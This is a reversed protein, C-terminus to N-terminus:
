QEMRLKKLIERYRSNTPYAELLANCILLAKNLDKDMGAGRWYENMLEEVDNAVGDHIALKFSSTAALRDETVGFLGELYIIGLVLEAPGYNEKSLRGLIQKGKDFDIITNADGVFYTVARDLEQKLAKTPGKVNEQEKIKKTSFEMYERAKDYGNEDARKFLNYAEQYDIDVGTGYYYMLGLNYMALPYGVEVAQRYYYVADERNQEVGRGYYYCNALQNYVYGYRSPLAKNFLNVAKGYDQELYSDGFYYRAGLNFFGNYSGLEAAKEYYFAAKDMNKATDYGDQYYVGLMNTAGPHNCSYLKSFLDFAKRYDKSYGNRGYYCNVAERYMEEQKTANPKFLM